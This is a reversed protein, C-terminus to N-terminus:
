DVQNGGEYFQIVKLRDILEHIRVQNCFYKKQEDKKKQREAPGHLMNFKYHQKGQYEFAVKLHPLFVDIEM